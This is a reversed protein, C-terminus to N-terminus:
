FISFGLPIWLSVLFSLSFLLSTSKPLSPSLARCLSASLAHRKGQLDDKGPWQPSDHAM